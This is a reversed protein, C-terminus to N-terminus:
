EVLLKKASRRKGRKKKGEMKEVFDKYRVRGDKRTDAQKVLENIEEESLKEGMNTLVHKLENASIIGHGEDDFAQFAECIM